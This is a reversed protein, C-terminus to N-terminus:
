QRDLWATYAAMAQRNHARMTQEIGEADHRRLQEIMRRHERQAQRARQTFIGHFFHRRMRDWHDLSRQLMQHVMPMGARRSIALHFRSNLAAWAEPKRASLAREMGGALDDLEHLDAVDMAAAAARGSVTELGELLAFIEVVLQRSVPAVTTGVHAVSVILGESELLRFAERVPIISVDFERAVDDIVLRQGPKLQCAIIAKRLAEYAFQQKTVHVGRARM